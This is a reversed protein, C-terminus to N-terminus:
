TLEPMQVLEEPLRFVYVAALLKTCYLRNFNYISLCNQM